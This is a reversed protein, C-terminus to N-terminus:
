RDVRWNLTLAGPTISAATPNSVLFNVNNATPYATIVLCGTTSAANYGTVGNPSQNFGWSIVDTTAVGTAAVTVLTASAGSTIASTGLAATGSAIVRGLAVGEVAVVGASSRSLTTDSAHGLEVSGVGIATSTSATIGSVPLGTCNTLTGGSPTGLAGGNTVIAGASGVAVALATGVGTGPTVGAWTTLDADYAQVNTGIVLGLLTRIAAYDAAQLISYVNATATIEEWSGAGSTSRGLLKYQTTQALKALSVANNDITWTAGSGSVTIDGKDGDSLVSSAGILVGGLTSGDGRYFKKTDSTWVYEGDAPTGAARTADTVSTFKVNAM